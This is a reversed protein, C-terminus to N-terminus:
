TARSRDLPARRVKCRFACGEQGEDGARTAAEVVESEKGEVSAPEDSVSRGVVSRPASSGAQKKLLM